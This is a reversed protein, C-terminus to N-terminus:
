QFAIVSKQAKLEDNARIVVQDGEDLDGFVEIQDKMNIGTGDFFM